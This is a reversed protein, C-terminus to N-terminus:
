CSDLVGLNVASAGPKAFQSTLTVNLWQNDAIAAFLPLGNSHLCVIDDDIWAQTQLSSGYCGRMTSPLWTSNANKWAQFFTLRMVLAVIDYTTAFPAAAGCSTSNTVANISANKLCALEATNSAGDVVLSCDGFVAFATGSADTQAGYRGHKLDFSAAMTVPSTTAVDFFPVIPLSHRGPLPTPIASSSAVTLSVFLSVLLLCM